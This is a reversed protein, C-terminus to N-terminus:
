DWKYKKVESLPMGSLQSVMELTFTKTELMRKATEIMQKEQGEKLGEKRGEEREEKLRDELLKCM